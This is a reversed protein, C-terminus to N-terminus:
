SSCQDGELKVGPVKGDRIARYIAKAEEESVGLGTGVGGSIDMMAEVAEAEARQAATRYTKMDAILYLVGKSEPRDVDRLWATDGSLALIEYCWDGHGNDGDVLDGVKWAPHDPAWQDDCATSTMDQEKASLIPRYAIVRHRKPVSQSWNVTEPARMAVWPVPQYGDNIKVQYPHGDPLPCEGGHWPIWGDADAEVVRWSAGLRDLSLIVDGEIKRHEKTGKHIAYLM